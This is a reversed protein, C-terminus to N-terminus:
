FEAGFISLRGVSWVCVCVRTRLFQRQEESNPGFLGITFYAVRQFLSFGLVAECVFFVILIFDVFFLSSFFDFSRLAASGLEVFVEGWRCISQRRGM